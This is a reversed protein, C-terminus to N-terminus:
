FSVVVELKLPHYDQLAEERRRLNEGLAASGSRTLGAPIAQRLYEDRGNDRYENVVRDFVMPDLGIGLSVDLWQNRFGGELYTAWFTGELAWSEKDYRAVRTDWQAYLRRPLALDVTLRTFAYEISGPFDRSRLGAALAAAASVSRGAPPPSSRVIDNWHLAAELLASRELDFAVMNSVTLRDRDDLWFNKAPTFVHFEDPTEGYNQDLYVFTATTRWRNRAYVADVSIEQVDATEPRYIGRDFEFESWTYSARVRSPASGFDLGATWRTSTQLPIKRDSMATTQAISLDEPDEFSATSSEGTRIDATARGFGALVAFRPRIEYRLWGADANWFERTTQLLAEFDTAGRTVGAVIGPHLGRNWRMTYGLDLSGADAVFELAWTDEDEFANEYRYITTDPGTSSAFEELAEAEITPPPATRGGVRDCFLGRISTKLLPPTEVAFGHREYGASYDYIGVRGVLHYPDSSTWITDNEFAKFVAGGMKLDVNGRDFLVEARLPSVDWTDGTTKFDVKAGINKGTHSVWVDLAQDASTKGDDVLFAGIYRVSPVLKEEAEVESEEGAGFVLTGAKERLALPSGQSANSPPNDPDTMWKGDVVYKYRYTGPLLYLAVEFVDGTKQMKEYTPNWNNFDGALFVETAGPARISFIVEGEVIRVGGRATEVSLVAALAAATAVCLFISRIPSL